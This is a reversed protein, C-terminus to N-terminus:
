VNIRAKVESEKVVQLSEIWTADLTEYNLRISELSAARVTWRTPCLNRVGPVQPSMEEKLKHFIADRRPSYKLLKCIELSHDLVDSM